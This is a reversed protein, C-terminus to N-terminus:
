DYTSIKLKKTKYTYKFLTEDSVDGECYKSTLKYVWIDDRSGKITFSGITKKGSGDLNCSYISVKSKTSSVKSISCYYSKKGIFNAITVRKGLSKIKTIKGSSAIKYLSYTGAPPDGDMQGNWGLFYQSRNYDIFCKSAAKTLKKTSVNYTYVTGYDRVTQIVIAKGYIRVFGASEYSPFTQIVKAKDDNLKYCSLRYKTGDNLSEIAYVYTGNTIIDTFANGVKGKFPAKKATSNTSKKYWAEGDSCTFYYNGVKKWQGEDEYSWSLKKYATAAEAEVTGFKGGTLEGICPISAMAMVFLLLATLLRKKM